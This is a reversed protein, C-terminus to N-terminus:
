SWFPPLFTPATGLCHYHDKKQIHLFQAPHTHEALKFLLQTINGETELVVEKPKLFFSIANKSSRHCHKSFCRM